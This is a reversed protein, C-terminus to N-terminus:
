PTTPATIGPQATRMLSAEPRVRMLWWSGMPTRDWVRWRQYYAALDPDSAQLKQWDKPDAVVVLAPGERQAWDLLDRSNDAEALSKDYFAISQDGVGYLVLRVRDNGVQDHIYAIMRPNSIPVLLDDEIEFLGCIAATYCVFVVALGAGRWRPRRLWVWRLWGSSVVLVIMLVLGPYIRFGLFWFVAGIAAVAMLAVCVLFTDVVEPPKFGVTPAQRSRDLWRELMLATLLALPPCLPMLYTALKGSILSFVVFPLVVALAWLSEDSSRRLREWATRWPLNLGPLSAMATAPFLGGVLVPLFYWIPQTHTAHAGVRGITEHYWLSVAEPYHRWVMGAWTVLPLPSLILGTVLHLRRLSGWQKGLLLWVALVGIPMWAVPGKTMLGLAVAIWMGLVLGRRPRRVALYGLALTAFWFLGLMGDTLTIRSVILFLPMMSLVAAAMVGVRAGGIRWGLGALLLLTLSGALASPLRAAFETIGFGRMAAAELWYTLPPKTLHPRGLLTPMLLSGGEAMNRSVTAYRGDSRGFLPHDGLSFWIPVVSLFLLAWLLWRRDGSIGTALLDSRGTAQPGAQSDM